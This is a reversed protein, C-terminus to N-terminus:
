SAAIESLVAVNLGKVRRFVPDNTVFLSCYCELGSAAHIADPTKLNTAARERAATELVPPTIPMCTLRETDSLIDRYRAALAQNGHRLPKVLVELLTLGSTYVDLKGAHLADWLPRGASYFPEIKEVQYIFACTDVYVPGAEPLIILGM